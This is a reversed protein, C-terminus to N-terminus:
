LVGHFAERAEAIAAVIVVTWSTRFFTANGSSM